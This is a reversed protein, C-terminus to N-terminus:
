SRKRASCGSLRAKGISPPLLSYDHCHANLPPGSALHVVGNEDDIIGVVRHALPQSGSGLHETVEQVVHRVQVSPPTQVRNAVVLAVRLCPPLQHHGPGRRSLDYGHVGLEKPLTDIAPKPRPADVGVWHTVSAVSFLRLAPAAGSHYVLLIVMAVVNDPLSNASSSWAALRELARCVGISCTMSAAADCARVSSWYKRSTPWNHAM